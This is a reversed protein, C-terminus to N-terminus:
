AFRQLGKDTNLVCCSVQVAVDIHCLKPSWTPDRLPWIDGRRTGRNTIGKETSVGGWARRDTCDQVIGRNSMSITKCWRGTGDEPRGFQLVVEAIELPGEM